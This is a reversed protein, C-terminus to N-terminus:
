TFAAPLVSVSVSLSESVVLAVCSECVAIVCGVEPM